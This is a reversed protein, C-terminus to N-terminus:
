VYQTHFVTFLFRSIRVRGVGHLGDNERAAFVGTPEVAPVPRVFVGGEPGGQTHGQLVCAM